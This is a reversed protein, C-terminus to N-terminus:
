LTYNSDLDLNGTQARVGLSLYDKSLASESLYIFGRNTIEVDEASTLQTFLTNQNSNVLRHSLPMNLRGINFKDLEIIYPYVTNNIFETSVM